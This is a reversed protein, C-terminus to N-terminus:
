SICIKEKAKVIMPLKSFQSPIDILISILALSIISELNQIHKEGVFVKYYTGYDTIVIQLIKNVISYM